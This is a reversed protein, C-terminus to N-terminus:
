VNLHLQVLKAIASSTFGRFIFVFSKALKNREVTYGASCVICPFASITVTTHSAYFFAKHLVQELGAQQTSYSRPLNYTSYISSDAHCRNKSATGLHLVFIASTLILQSSCSERKIFSLKTSSNASCYEVNTDSFSM